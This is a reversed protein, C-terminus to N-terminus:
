TTVKGAGLHGEFRDAQRGERFVADHGHIRRRGGGEIRHQRVRIGAAAEARRGGDAEHLEPRVDEHGNGAVADDAKRARDGLAESRVDEAHAGPLRGHRRRRRELDDVHLVARREPLLQPPGEAKRVPHRAKPKEFPTTEGARYFNLQWQEESRPGASGPVPVVTVKWGNAVQIAWEFKGGISVADFKRTTIGSVPSIVAISARVPGLDAAAKVTARYQTPTLDEKLVEFADNEIFVKSGPTFRGNFVIEGTTGATVSSAMVLGIEPTPYKAKAQDRTLGTKQMQQQCEKRFAAQREQYKQTAAHALALAVLVLVLVSTLRKLPSSM